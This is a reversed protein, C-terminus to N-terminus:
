LRELKLEIDCAAEPTLGQAFCARSSARYKKRFKEIQRKSRGAERLGNIVKELWEDFTNM